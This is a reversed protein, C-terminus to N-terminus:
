GRSRSRALRGRPALLLGGTSALVAALAALALGSGPLAPVTPSPVCNSIELDLESGEHDSPWCIADPAPGCGPAFPNPDDSFIRTTTGDADLDGPGEIALNCSSGAPPSVLFTFDIRRDENSASSELQSLNADERGSTCGVGTAPVCEPMGAALYTDTYGSTVVLHDYEFSGPAANMDGTVIAPTPSTHRLAVWNALQVAQCQRNTAAGASVCEAPCPSACAGNANDSGSALHTTFIDIPGKPHDIRGHLVHRQLAPDGHLVLLASDLVPYRTLIMEEDIISHPLFLQTYQGGCATPYRANVAALVSNGFTSVEQLTVVDPCGADEIWQFMLDMRDSLRCRDSAAPCIVGHLVNLNAVTLDPDARGSSPLSAALLSLIGLGLSRSRRTQM